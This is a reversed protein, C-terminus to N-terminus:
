KSFGGGVDIIAESDVIGNSNQNTSRNGNYANYDVKFHNNATSRPVHYQRNNRTSGDDHGMYSRPRIDMFQSNVAAASTVSSKSFVRDTEKFKCWNTQPIRERNGDWGHVINGHPTGAM